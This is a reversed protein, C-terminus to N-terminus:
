KDCDNERWQFIHSPEIFQEAIDRLPKVIKTYQEYSTDKHVDFCMYDFKRNTTKLYHFIDDNVIESKDTDIYPWVLDIVENAIEVVMVSSVEPKNNLQEAIYGLGGVLVSGECADIAEQHQALEGHCTQMWEFDDENLHTIGHKHYVKFRGNTREPIM